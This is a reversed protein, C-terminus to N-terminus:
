LAEWEKTHLFYTNLGENEIPKFLSKNSYVM